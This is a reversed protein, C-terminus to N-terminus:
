RGLRDCAVRLEDRFTPEGVYARLSPEGVYSLKALRVIEAAEPPLTKAIADVQDLLMRGDGHTMKREYRESYATLAAHMQEAEAPWKRMLADRAMEFSAAARERSRRMMAENKITWMGRARREEFERYSNWRREAQAPTL